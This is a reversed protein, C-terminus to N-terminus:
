NNEKATRRSQGCVLRTTRPFVALGIFKRKEKEQLGNALVVERLLDGSKLLEIESNIEEETLPLPSSPMQLTPEPTVMPDSRQRSVLIEMTSEYSGAVVVAVLVVVLLMGVFILGSMKKRRFLPVLLDRM